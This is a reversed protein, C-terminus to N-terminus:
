RMKDINLVKINLLVLEVFSSSSQTVFSKESLRPKLARNLNLEEWGLQDIMM